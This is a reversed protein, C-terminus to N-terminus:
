FQGIDLRRLFLKKIYLIQYFCLDLSLDEIVWFWFEEKIENELTM